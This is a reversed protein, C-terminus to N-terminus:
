MHKAVVRWLVKAVAAAKGQFKPLQVRQRNCQGHLLRACAIRFNCLLRSSAQLYDVSRETLECGPDLRAAKGTSGTATRGQRVSTMQQDHGSPCGWEAFSMTLGLPAHQALGTRKLCPPVRAAGCHTQHGM